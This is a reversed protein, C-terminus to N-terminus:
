LLQNPGVCPKVGARNLKAWSLGWKNQNKGVKAITNYFALGVKGKYVILNILGLSFRLEAVIFGEYSSLFQRVM